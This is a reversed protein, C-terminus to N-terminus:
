EVVSFLQVNRDLLQYSLTRGFIVKPLTAAYLGLNVNSYTLTHKRLVTVDKKNEKRKFTM